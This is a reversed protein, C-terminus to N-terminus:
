SLVFTCPLSLSFRLKWKVLVRVLFGAKRDSSLDATSFLVSHYIRFAICTSVLLIFSLTFSLYTNKTLPLKSRTRTPINHAYSYLYYCTYIVIPIPTKAFKLQKFSCLLCFTNFACQLCALDRDPITRSRLFVDRCSLGPSRSRIFLVNIVQFMVPTNSIDGCCARTPVVSM